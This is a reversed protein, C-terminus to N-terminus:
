RRTILRRRTVSLSMAHLIPYVIRSGARESGGAAIQPVSIGYSLSDIFRSHQKEDPTPM